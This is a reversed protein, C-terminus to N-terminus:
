MSRLATSRENWDIRLPMQPLSPSEEGDYGVDAKLNQLNHLLPSQIHQAKGSM